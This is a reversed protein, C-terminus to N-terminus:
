LASNKSNTGQLFSTQGADPHGLIGGTVREDGALFFSLLHEQSALHSQICRLVVILIDESQLVMVHEHAQFVGCYSMGECLGGANYM